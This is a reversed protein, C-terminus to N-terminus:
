LVSARGECARRVATVLSVAVSAAGKDLLNFWPLNPRLCKGKVAVTTAHPAACARVRPRRAMAEGRSDAGIQRRQGLRSGGCRGTRKQGVHPGEQLVVHVADRRQGVLHLSIELQHPLEVRHTARFAQARAKAGSWRQANPGRAGKAAAM